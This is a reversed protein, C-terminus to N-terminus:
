LTDIMTKMGVNIRDMVDDNKLTGNTISRSNFCTHIHFFKNAQDKQNTKTLKGLGIFDLYIEM